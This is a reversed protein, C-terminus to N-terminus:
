QVFDLTQNKNKRCKTTSFKFYMLEIISKIQIFSEDM